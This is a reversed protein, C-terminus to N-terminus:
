TVRTLLVTAWGDEGLRRVLRWGPYAREAAEVQAELLGSLVLWGRPAVTGALTHADTVISELLLNAVVLDFRARVARATGGLLRVRGAGNRDLTARALPLVAPDADLAAVSPVGLRALAAALVGSGTGVDLASSIQHEAVLAAAAELCTRTTPHQGTGFAMGPEVVLVERGPAAVMEWPPVVVLRQGIWVPRHHRRALATWDVAPVPVVRVHADCAAPELDALSRLYRALAAAVRGEEAAPLSAELRMRRCQPDGNADVTVIGAAGEELLINAVADAVVAPVDVHL